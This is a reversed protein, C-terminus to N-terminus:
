DSAGVARARALGEETSLYHPPEPRDRREIDGDRFMVIEDCALQQWANDM